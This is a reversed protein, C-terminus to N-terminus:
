STEEPKLCVKPVAMITKSIKVTKKTSKELTKKTALALINAITDITTIPEAM